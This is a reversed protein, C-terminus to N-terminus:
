YNYSTPETWGDVYGTDYISVRGGNPYTFETWGITANIKLPEGLLNIVDDKRLQKSLQRWKSKNEDIKSQNITNQDNDLVFGTPIEELRSSLSPDYAKEADAKNKILKYLRYGFVLKINAKLDPAGKEIMQYEKLATKDFYNTNLVDTMYVGSYKVVGKLSDTMKDLLLSLEADSEAQASQIEVQSPYIKTAIQFYQDLNKCFDIAPSIIDEYRPFHSDKAASWPKISELYKLLLENKKKALFMESLWNGTKTTPGEIKSINYFINSLDIIKGLSNSAYDGVNLSNITLTESGKNQNRIMISFLLGSILIGLVFNLSVKLYKTDVNRFKISRFSGLVFLVFLIILGFSFIIFYGYGFFSLWKSLNEAEEYFMEAVHLRFGNAVKTEIQTKDRGFTYAGISFSNAVSLPMYDQYVSFLEDRVINIKNEHACSLIFFPVFFIAMAILWVRSVKLLQVM